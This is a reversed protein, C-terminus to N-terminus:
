QNRALLKLESVKCIIVRLSCSKKFLLIQYSKSDKHRVKETALVVQDEFDHERRVQILFLVHFQGSTNKSGEQNNRVMKDEVKILQFQLWDKRLAHLDELFSGGHVVVAIHTFRWEVDIMEDCADHRLDVEGCIM